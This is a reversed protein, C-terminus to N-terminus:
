SKETFEVFFNANEQQFFGFSTTFHVCANELM